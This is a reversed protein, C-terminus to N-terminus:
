RKEGVANPEDRCLSEPSSQSPATAEGQTLAARAQWSDWSVRAMEVPSYAARHNDTSIEGYMSHHWKEFAEREDTM